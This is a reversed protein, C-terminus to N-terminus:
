ELEDVLQWDYLFVNIEFNFQFFWFDFNVLGVVVMKGDIMMIKVYLFGVQYFYIMVGENVLVCVYYQIVWYVFVYDFMLFIMIWVDVGFYVVIWLVDIVLDDFILYFMQIWIYDQVVNILCLYGFKIVQLFVDLGLLVIQM